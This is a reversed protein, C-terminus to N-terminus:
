SSLLAPAEVLRAVAHSRGRPAGADAQAGRRLRSRPCAKDSRLQEECQGVARESGCGEMRGLRRWGGSPGMGSKQELGYM